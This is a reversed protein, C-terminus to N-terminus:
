NPAGNCKDLADSSTASIMCRYENKDYEDDCKEAQKKFEPDSGLETRLAALQKKKESASLKTGEEDLAEQATIDLVHDIVKQCEAATLKAVAPAASPAEPAPPAPPAPAIATPTPKEKEKCAAASIAVLAAFIAISTKVLV